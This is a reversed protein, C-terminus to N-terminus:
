DLVPTQRAGFFLKDLNLRPIACGVGVPLIGPAFGALIFEPFKHRM